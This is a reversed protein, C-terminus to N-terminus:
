AHGGVEHALQKEHRREEELATEFAHVMPSVEGEHQHLAKEVVPVYPSSAPAPSALAPALANENLRRVILAGAVGVTVLAMFNEFKM